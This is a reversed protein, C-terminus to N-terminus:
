QTTYMWEPPDQAMEEAIWLRCEEPWDQFERLRLADTDYSTANEGYNIIYAWTGDSLQIHSM